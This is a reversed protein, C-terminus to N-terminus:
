YLLISRLRAVEENTSDDNGRRYPKRENSSFLLRGFTILLTTMQSSMEIPESQAILPMSLAM